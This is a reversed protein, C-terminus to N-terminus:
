QAREIRYSFQETISANRYARSALFQSLAIFMNGAKYSYTQNLFQINYM